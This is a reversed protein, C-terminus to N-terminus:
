CLIVQHATLTLDVWQQDNLLQFGASLSVGRQLLDHELVYLKDSPWNRQQKLLYVADQRLLVADQTGALNYIANPELTTLQYLLM